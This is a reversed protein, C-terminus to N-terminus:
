KMSLKKRRNAMQIIGTMLGTSNTKRGILKERLITGDEKMSIEVGDCLGNKFPLYKIWVWGHVTKTYEYAMGTFLEETDPHLHCHYSYKSCGLKLSRISYLLGSENKYKARKM